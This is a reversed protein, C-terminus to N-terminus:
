SFLIKSAEDSFLEYQANFISQFACNVEIGGYVLVFGGDIDVPTDQLSLKGKSFENIKIAFDDPLRKLDSMSMYIFGDAQESYKTIMKYILDFYKDAPLSCLYQRATDLANSIIEQKAKLIVARSELDAASKARSIIENKKLQAKNEGEAIISQARDQADRIICDCQSQTKSKIEACVGDSDSKIQALIKELGTM